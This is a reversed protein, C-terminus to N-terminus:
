RTAIVITLSAGGLFQVERPPMGPHITVRDVIGGVTLEGVTISDSRTQV